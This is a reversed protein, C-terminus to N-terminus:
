SRWSPRQRRARYPRRAGARVADHRAQARRRRRDFAGAHRRLHARGGSGGRGGLGLAYNLPHIHFARRSICPTSITIAGSCRACASPRGAKSRPASIRASRAAGDALAHEGDDSRRFKSGAPSPEVGPMRTEAITTRVYDLGPRRCHGCRRPTISGSAASSGRGDVGAFGPLCSVPTAARPMGPSADAELVAVSWGRRAM